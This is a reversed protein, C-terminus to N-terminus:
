AEDRAGSLAHMPGEPDDPSVLPLRVIIETGRGPSSSASIQGGHASVISECISLGLGSGGTGQSRQRSKDARYFRKFIHPLDAESIGIGSDIVRLTAAGAVPSTTLEVRVTGGSPTFKIANDVLNTAVQRLRSADGYVAAPSIRECILTVGRSEAVASFMECTRCVIKDLSVVDSRSDIRSADNEALILLRNVLDRLQSCEELTEGLLERYEDPTRDQGLAVDLTSQMAALPSRLEHAADATFRRNEELYRAIRDLFGNITVSLRDLEDRTGRLHLREDLNSPHLRGTTDIIRALPRTARGALWYGGIPAILLVAAGIALLIRTISALEMQLPELSAGVVIKIRPIDRRSTYSHMVRYNDYTQPADARIDVMEAVDSPATGSQWRLSDDANVLAFFLGIHRHTDTTRELEHTIRDFDPYFEEVTLEVERTDDDLMTDAEHLMALRLGERVAGLATVVMLLTVGTYWMTLRFHLTGFLERYRAYRM